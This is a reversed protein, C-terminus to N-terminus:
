PNAAITRKTAEAVIQQWHQATLRVFGNGEDYEAIQAYPARFGLYITQGIEANNIVESIQAENAPFDKARWEVGPMGATSAMLSRRLRGTLVPMHGGESKPKMMEAAAIRSSERFVGVTRKEAKLAFDSVAASFSKGRPPM